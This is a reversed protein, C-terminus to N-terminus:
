SRKNYIQMVILGAGKAIEVVKKVFRQDIKKM